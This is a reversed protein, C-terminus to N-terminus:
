ESAVGERLLVNLTDKSVEALGLNELTRGTSDLDRGVIASSISLIGTALPIDVNLWRAISAWLSLGLAVDELMYRHNLLDIKERWDGSDTLKKHSHNGYM